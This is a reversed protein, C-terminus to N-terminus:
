RDGRARYRKVRSHVGCGAESCWQRRGSKSGDLFLWGCNDGKCERVLRRDSRSILLDTASLAFLHFIDSPDDFPFTWVFHAAGSIAFRAYCEKM